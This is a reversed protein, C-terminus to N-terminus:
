EIFKITVMEIKGSKEGSHATDDITLEYNGWKFWEDSLTENEKQNEFGLNYKETEQAQCSFSIITLLAILIKKDIRKKM